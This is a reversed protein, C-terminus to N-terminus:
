SIGHQVLYALLPLFSVDKTAGMISNLISMNGPEWDATNRGSRRDAIEGVREFLRAQLMDYAGAFAHRVLRIGFSGASIDNDAIDACPQLPTYPLLIVLWAVVARRSARSGRM